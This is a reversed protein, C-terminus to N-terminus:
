HSVEALCCEICIIINCNECRIAHDICILNNCLKCAVYGLTEFRINCIYCSELITIRTGLYLENM